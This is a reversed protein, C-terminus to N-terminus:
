KSEDDPDIFLKVGKSINKLGFLNHREDVKVYIESFNVCSKFILFYRFLIQRIIEFPDFRFVVIQIIIKVRKLSAGSGFFQSIFILFCSFPQQTLSLVLYIKKM